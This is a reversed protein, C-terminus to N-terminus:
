LQPAISISGSTNGACDPLGSLGLTDGPALAASLDVRYWRGTMPEVTVIAQGGSASWNASDGAFVADVDESFLVDIVTGLADSRYNVFASGFAPDLADGGVSGFINAAPSMALGAHDYVDSVQVNLAVGPQLNQGDALLITVVRTSSSWTLAAGNLSLAAGGNTITYNSASLASGLEVQKNYLVTVIDGGAGSVSTGSVSVVLPGSSDANTVARSAVGSNGALDACTIDITDGAIVGGSFTARITRLGLLEATDPHTAGNLDILNVDTADTPDLAESMEILV